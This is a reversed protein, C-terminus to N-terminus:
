FFPFELHDFSGPDFNTRDLIDTFYFPLELRNKTWNLRQYHLYIQEFKVKQATLLKLDFILDTGHESDLTLCEPLFRYFLMSEQKGFKGNKLLQLPDFITGFFGFFRVLTEWSIHVNDEWTTTSLKSFV